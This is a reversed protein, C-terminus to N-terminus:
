INAALIFNGTQAIFSAFNKHTPAVPAQISKPLVQNNFSFSLIFRNAALETPKQRPTKFLKKKFRAQVKSPWLLGIPGWNSFNAATLRTPSPM